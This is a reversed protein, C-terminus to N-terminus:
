KYSPEVTTRATAIRQLDADLEPWSAEDDRELLIGVSPRRQTIESVLADIEPWLKQTHSDIREGDHEIGGAVHVYAIRDADISTIVDRASEGVNFEEVVLNALDILVLADTRGLVEGIFDVTSMTHNTWRLDSAILEVGFPVDFRACLQNVHEVVVDCQTPTRPVSMLHGAELGGARVFAIHETVMTAGTLKVANKLLDIRREDLPEPSALGLGIGHVAISRGAVVLALEQGLSSNVSEALVEVFAIDPRELIGHGRGPRFSVGTGGVSM